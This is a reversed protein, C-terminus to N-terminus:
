PKKAELRAFYNERAKEPDAGIAIYIRTKVDIVVAQLKELDPSKFATNKKDNMMNRM